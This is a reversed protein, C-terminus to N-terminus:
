LGPSSSEQPIYVNIFTLTAGELDAVFALVEATDFHPSRRPPSFFSLFQLPLGTLPLLTPGPRFTPPAAGTNPAVPTFLTLHFLHTFTLHVFLTHDRLDREPQPSAIQGVTTPDLWWPSAAHKTPNCVRHALSVGSSM